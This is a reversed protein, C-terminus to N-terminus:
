HANVGVLMMTIAGAIKGYPDTLGEIKANAWWSPYLRHETPTRDLNRQRGLKAENKSAVSSHRRALVAQSKVM